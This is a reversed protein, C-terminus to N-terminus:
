FHMSTANETTGLLYLAKAINNKASSLHPSNKQHTQEVVM